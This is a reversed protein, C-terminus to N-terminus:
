SFNMDKEVEAEKTLDIRDSSVLESVLEAVLQGTRRVYWVRSIESM